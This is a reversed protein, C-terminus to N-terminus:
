WAAMAAGYAAGLQSEGSGDRIEDLYRVLRALTRAREDGPVIEAMSTISEGLLKSFDQKDEAALAALIRETLNLIVESRPPEVGEWIEKTAVLSKAFEEDRLYAAIRLFELRYIRTKSPDNSGSVIHAFNEKMKSWEEGDVGRVFLLAFLIRVSEEPSVDGDVGVAAGDLDARLVNDLPGPFHLKVKEEPSLDSLSDDVQRLATEVTEGRYVNRLARRLERLIWLRFDMYDSLLMQPAMRSDVLFHLHDRESTETLYGEDVKIIAFRSSLAVGHTWSVMLRWFVPLSRANRLRNVRYYCYRAVLPIYVFLDRNNWIFKPAVLKETADLLLERFRPSKLRHLAIEAVSLCAVPNSQWPVLDLLDLVRSNSVSELCSALTLEPLFRGNLMIEIEPASKSQIDHFRTRPLTTSFYEDPSLGGPEPGYWRSLGLISEPIIEDVPVNAGSFIKEDILALPGRDDVYMTALENLIDISSQTSSSELRMMLRHWTPWSAGVDMQSMMNQRIEEDPAILDLLGVRGESILEGDTSKVLLSFHCDDLKLFISKGEGRALEVDCPEESELLSKAYELIKRFRITFGDVEIAAVGLGAERAVKPSTEVFRNAFFPTLRSFFYRMKLTWAADFDENMEM